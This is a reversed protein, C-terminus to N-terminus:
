GRGIHREPAQRGRCPTIREHWMASFSSSALSGCAASARSSGSRVRVDKRLRHARYRCTRSARAAAQQGLGLWYETLSLMGRAGTGRRQLHIKWLSREKGVAPVWVGAEDEVVVAEVGAADCVVDVLAAANKARAGCIRGCARSLRRPGSAAQCEM